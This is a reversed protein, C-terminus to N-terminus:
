WHITVSFFRDQSKAEKREEIRQAAALRCGHKAEVDISGQGFDVIVFDTDDGFVFSVELLDIRTVREIALVWYGAANGDIRRRSM